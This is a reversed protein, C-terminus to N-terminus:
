GDNDNIMVTALTATIEIDLGPSLSVSFSEPVEPLDDDVIPIIISASTDGPPFLLTGM